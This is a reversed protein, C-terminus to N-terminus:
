SDDLVGGKDSLLEAIMSIGALRQKDSSYSDYIVEALTLIDEPFITTLSSTM